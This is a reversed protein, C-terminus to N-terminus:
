VKRLLVVPSIRCSVSAPRPFTLPHPTVKATELRRRQAGKGSPRRVEVVPDGCRDLVHDAVIFNMEPEDKRIGLSGVQGGKQFRESPEIADPEARAFPRTIEMALHNSPWDSRSTQGNRRGTRQRNPPCTHRQAFAVQSSREALERSIMALSFWAECVCQYTMM